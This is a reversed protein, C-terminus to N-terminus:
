LYSEVASQQKEEKKSQIMRETKVFNSDLREKQLMRKQIGEMQAASIGLQNGLTMLKSKVDGEAYIQKIKGEVMVQQAQTIGENKTQQLQQMAQNQMQQQAEAKKSAKNEIVALLMNAEKLNRISSVIFREMRNLQGRQEMIMISQNLDAEEEQRMGLSVNIFFQHDKIGGIDDISKTKDKGILEEIQKKEIGGKEISQKVYYAMIFFINKFRNTRAEFAYNIANMGQQMNMRRAANLLDPNTNTGDLQDNIGTWKGINAAAQLIIQIYGNVESKLGGAIERVATFNGENKGDMGQSDGIVNNEEIAMNLLQKMVESQSQGETLLGSIAGRIYKLDIYKGSPASKIIAHQLKIDARLAKKNEGICHEVASRKQSRYFDLSFKSFAERGQERYAFGLKGKGFFKKTKPLWYFTYTNQGWLKKSSKSENEVFMKSGSKKNEVYNLADMSIVQFEILEVQTRGFQNQPIKELKNLPCYGADSNNIIFDLDKENAIENGFMNFLENVTPYHKYLRVNSDRFDNYWSRQVYANAPHLYEVEPLATVSSNYIRCASCGYKFEDETTLLDVGDIKKLKYLLDLITEFAAEPQLKYVIEKFIRLQSSDNLDLDLPIEKFPVHSHKTGEVEYEGQAMEDSMEQAIAKIQAVKKLYEIDREKKEGAISDIAQCEIDFMTKHVLQIATNLKIPILPLPEFSADGSDQNNAQNPNNLRKAKERFSKFERKFPKMDIEGTAYQEIEEINKGFLMSKIGSHFYIENAVTWCWDDSLKDKSFNWEQIFKTL